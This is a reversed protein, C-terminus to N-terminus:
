PRHRNIAFDSTHHIFWLSNKIQLAYGNAMPEASSATGVGDVHVTVDTVEAGCATVSSSFPVDASDSTDVVRIEGTAFV